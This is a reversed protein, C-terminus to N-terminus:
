PLLYQFKWLFIRQLCHIGHLKAMLECIHNRCGFCFCFRGLNRMVLVMCGKHSGTNSATTDFCLARVLERIKWEDVQDIVADAQIDGASTHNGDEDKLTM